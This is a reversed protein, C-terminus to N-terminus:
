HRKGMYASHCTELDILAFARPHFDALYTGSAQLQFHAASSFGGELLHMLLDEATVFIKDHDSAVVFM